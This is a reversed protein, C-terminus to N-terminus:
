SSARKASPETIGMLIPVALTGSIAIRSDNAGFYVTLSLAAAGLVGFAQGYRDDGHTMAFLEQAALATALLVLAYWGWAPGLFLLALILPGAVAATTLRVALNSKKVVHETVTGVM